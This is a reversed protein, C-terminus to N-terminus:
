SSSADAVEPGLPFRRELNGYAKPTLEIVTHLPISLHPISARPADTFYGYLARMVAQHSVVLVTSQQRELELLVPELRDMIDEYSEGQPYRYRLKDAKRAAFEAPFRAEIERYTLGDCSGASIEDLARWRQVEDSVAQGTQVARQLTSTWVQLSAGAPLRERTFTALNRAYAHGLESLAADGGIRRQINYLSQGHRTLWIRRPAIHLNMLFFVIRGPLYGRIRNLVMRRNVDIVKIFAYEEEDIPEYVREYHAIRARFDAVAEEPSVEAYDPSLLKTERINAEILALDDCIVEVFVVDVGAQALRDAVWRRRARTSNTADYIGVDGETALWAVLDRLAAHAVQKRAERGKVNEPDFFSHPQRAGLRARRYNGVNFVRAAFGRWSLYRALKRATYTKGRAPLGVMVLVLKRHPTGDGRM